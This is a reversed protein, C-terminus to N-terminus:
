RLSKVIATCGAAIADVLPNLALMLPCNRPSMRYSRSPFQALPTAATHEKAYCRIHTLTHSMESLVMGTECIYSEEPSKGPGSSKGFPTARNM